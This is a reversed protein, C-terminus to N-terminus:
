TDPIGARIRKALYIFPTDTGAVIVKFIYTTFLIQLFVNFSFLGYFAITTFVVSDIFQSVLTSANNRLWLFKGKTMERWFHFSWIDHSQSIIYAILSATVVRPMFNFLVKMSEHVKDEPAPEFVLAFQLFIVMMILAFFGMLVGKYAARKGYMESLIDTSLFVSAYLVNGLTATIGFIEVIKMVQLNALLLNSIIVIYLGLRGFLRYALIASGLGLLMMSIWIFENTRLLDHLLM